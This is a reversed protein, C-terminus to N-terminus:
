KLSDDIWSLYKKSGEDLKLAIIEPVEDSIEKVLDILDANTSLGAQNLKDMVTKHELALQKLAETDGDGLAAKLRATIGRLSEFLSEHRESQM